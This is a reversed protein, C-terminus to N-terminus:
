GTRHHFVASPPFRRPSAARDDQGEYRAAKPWLLRADNPFSVSCGVDYSLAIVATTVALSLSLRDVDMPSLHVLEVDSVTLGAGSIHWAQPRVSNRGPTAVGRFVEWSQHWHVGAFAREADFGVPPEPVQAVIQKDSRAM